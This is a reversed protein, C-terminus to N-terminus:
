IETVPWVTASLKNCYKVKQGRLEYVKSEKDSERMEQGRINSVINSTTTLSQM